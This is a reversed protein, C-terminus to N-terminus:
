KKNFRGLNKIWKQLYSPKKRKILMITKYDTNLNQKVNITTATHTRDFVIQIIQQDIIRSQCYIGSAIVRHIYYWTNQTYDPIYTPIGILNILDNQKLKNIHIKKITDYDIFQGKCEVTAYSNVITSTAFIILLLKKLFLNKV